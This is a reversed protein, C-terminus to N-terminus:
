RLETACGFQLSLSGESGQVRDCTNTCLRIQSQDESYQWGESCGNDVSQGILEQVGDPDTFLVNVKGPDLTAGNPPIPVSYRCGLAVGAIIGLTNTLSASLDAERTMDFHCYNPGSNSCGPRATGGAEAMRSLSERGDDSGPSGIVFTRIGGLAAERAAEILPTSDVPNDPQGTGSCGLSYTPIGDTILVIFRSGVAASAAMDSVAYQYADHTPTGGSPRQRQFARQIRQRQQSGDAALAALPVATERQICPQDDNNDVNPYFIVGVSTDEPMDAIADLLASRTATWKSGRAGPASQDMSGSTDVVLQLVSPAAEAGATQGACAQGDFYGPVDSNPNTGDAEGEGFIPGDVGLLSANTRDDSSGKSSCATSLALALWVGACTASSRKTALSNMNRAGM